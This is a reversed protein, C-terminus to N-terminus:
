PVPAELDIEKNFDWLKMQIKLQAEVSGAKTWAVIEAQQIYPTAGTIWLTYTIDYFNEGIWPDALTPQCRIQYRKTFPRGEANIITCSGCNTFHLNELPNLSAAPPLSENREPMQKWQGTLMDKQYTIGDIVYMELDDGLIEGALYYNGDKDRNGHISGYPVNRDPLALVSTSEFAIGPAEITNQAAQTVLEAPTLDPVADKHAQYLFLITGIIAIFLLLALLRLFSLHFKKM